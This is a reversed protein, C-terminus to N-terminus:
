GVALTDLSEDIRKQAFDAQKGIEDRVQPGRGRRLGSLEGRRRPGFELLAEGMRVPAESLEDNRAMAGLCMRDRRELVPELAGMRAGRQALIGLSDVFGFAKQMVDQERRQARPQLTQLAELQAQARTMRAHLDLTHAAQTCSDLIAAAGGNPLAHLARPVPQPEGFPRQKRQAWERGELAAIRYDGARCAPDEPARCVCLGALRDVDAQALAPSSVALLLPAAIYRIM